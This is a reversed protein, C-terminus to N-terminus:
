VDGTVTPPDHKASLRAEENQERPCKGDSSVALHGSQLGRVEVSCKHSGSGHSQRWTATEDRRM